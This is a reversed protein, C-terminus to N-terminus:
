VTTIYQTRGGIVMNVILRRGETTPHGKEWHHLDAEIKEITPLWIVPQNIQNGVYAELARVASGDEVINMGIPIPEQNLNLQRSDIVSSHYVKTGVPLTNTKSINFRTGSASCWKDLINQLDMFSDGKDMFITTDDAFLTAILREQDGPVSYGKLCSARLMEALLEIAINFLLCSLPDGQRVGRQVTYPASVEGNLIIVTEGGAYLAKICGIFNEPLGVRAM